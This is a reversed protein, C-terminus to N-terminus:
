HGDDGRELDVFIEGGDLRVPFRRLSSEPNLPSRGTLPDFAEILEAQTEMVMDILASRPLDDESKSNDVRHKTGAYARMTIIDTVLNFPTAEMEEIAQSPLCHFEECVM